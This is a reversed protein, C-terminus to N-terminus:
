VVQGPHEIWVDAAPDVIVAVEILRFEIRREPPDINMQNPPHTAFELTEPM